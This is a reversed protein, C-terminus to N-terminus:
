AEDERSPVKPQSTRAGVFPGSGKSAKTADVNSLFAVSLGMVEINGKSSKLFVIKNAGSELLGLIRRCLSM